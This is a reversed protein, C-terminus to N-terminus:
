NNIYDKIKESLKVGDHRVFNNQLDLFDDEIIRINNEKCFETDKDSIFIQSAGDEIYKEKVIEPVPKNNVFVANISNDGLCDFIKELHEKIGMGTTEGPQSMINMIYIKKANSERINESIGKVLLNPIVSTFLSGPGLTIIDANKIAEIANELPLDSEAKLFVKSIPSNMRISELPILSEGEVIEGNELEACLRMDDLTVPLVKGKVALVNSTEQIAKEFDGYIDNMAAIFLNGFSQGKLSGNTFRYTMLKEMSPEVNSLAVICSRIDGPPLMGFEKRLIGSGGGDDAVTVIATINETFKKLGRLMTSLGTGGGMATIKKDIM